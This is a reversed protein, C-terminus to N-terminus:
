VILSSRSLCYDCKFRLARVVYSPDVGGICEMECIRVERGWEGVGVFLVIVSGMGYLCQRRVV